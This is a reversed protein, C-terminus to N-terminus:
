KRQNDHWISQQYISSKEITTATRHCKTQKNVRSVSTTKGNSIRKTKNKFPKQKAKVRHQQETSQHEDRSYLKEARLKSHVLPRITAHHTSANIFLRGYTQIYKSTSVHIQAYVYTNAPSSAIEEIVEM